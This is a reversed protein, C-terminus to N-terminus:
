QPKMLAALAKRLDDKAQEATTPNGQFHVGRRMCASVDSRKALDFVSAVEFTCASFNDGWPDYQPHSSITTSGPHLATPDRVEYNTDAPVIDFGAEAGPYVTVEVNAGQKRLLNGLAVCRTAPSMDDREGAFIKEPAYAKPVQRIFKVNCYPYFSFFARFGVEGTTLCRDRAEVTDALIATTGQGGFGILAIRNADIRSDSALFKLAGYADGITQSAQLATFDQCAAAHLGRAAFSDITLTAYGWSPLTGQQWPEPIGAPGECMRPVLVVVAPYPGVGTPFALEGFLRYSSDATRFAVQGTQEQTPYAELPSRTQDAEPHSACGGCAVAVCIAVVLCRGTRAESM